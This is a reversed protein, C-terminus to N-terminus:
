VCGVTSLIKKMTMLASSMETTENNSASADGKLIPLDSNTRDIRPYVSKEALHTNMSTEISRIPSAMSPGEVTTLLVSDM